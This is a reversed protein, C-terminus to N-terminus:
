INSFQDQFAIKLEKLKPYLKFKQLQEKIQQNNEIWYISFKKLAAQGIDNDDDKKDNKEVAECICEQFHKTPPKELLFYRYRYTDGYGYIEMDGCYIGQIDAM